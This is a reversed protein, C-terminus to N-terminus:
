YRFADSCPPSLPKGDSLIGIDGRFVGQKIEQYSQAIYDKEVDNLPFGPLATSSMVHYVAVEEEIIMRAIRPM